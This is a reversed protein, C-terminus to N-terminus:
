AAVSNTEERSNCVIDQEILMGNERLLQKMKEISNMVKLRTGAIRATARGNDEKMVFIWVPSRMNGEAYIRGSIRKRRVFAGGGKDSLEYFGVVFKQGANKEIFEKRSKYAQMKAKLNWM